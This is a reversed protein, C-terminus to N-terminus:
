DVFVRLEPVGNLNASAEIRGSVGIAPLSVDLRHVQGEYLIQALAAEILRYEAGRGHRGEAPVLDARSKIM